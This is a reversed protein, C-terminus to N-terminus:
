ALKDKSIVKRRCPLLSAMRISSLMKQITPTKRIFWAGIAIFPAKANQFSGFIIHLDAYRRNPNRAVRCHALAVPIGGILFSSSSIGCTLLLTWLMITIAYQDLSKSDELMDCLALHMIVAMTIWIVFAVMLEFAFLLITIIM